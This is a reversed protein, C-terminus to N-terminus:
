WHLFCVPHSVFCFHEFNYAGNVLKVVRGLLRYKHADTLFHEKKLFSTVCGGEFSNPTVYMAGDDYQSM